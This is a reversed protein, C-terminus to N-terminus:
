LYNDKDELAEVRVILEHVLMAELCSAMEDIRDVKNVIENIRSELLWMAVSVESLYLLQDENKVLQDVQSKDLQKAISM